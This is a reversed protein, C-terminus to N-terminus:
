RTDFEGDSPEASATAADADAARELVWGAFGAHPTLTQDDWAYSLGKLAAPIKQDIGGRAILVPVVLAPRGHRSAEKVAARLRSVAAARVPPAADDRLIAWRAARFDGEGRVFDAQRKLVSEWAPMAADDVPGHAVLVVTEKSPDRSLARARELLILSVLPSADLAPTLSVPLKTKLRATSLMSRVMAKMVFAPPGGRMPPASMMRMAARRLVKSPATSLGLVYRTQDMVESRSNVFFPVAIVRKVGRATLRDVAGQISRADAMGLAAEAPVTENVRARLREVAANWQPDGGHALLLIGYDAAPAPASRACAAGLAAALLLAAARM